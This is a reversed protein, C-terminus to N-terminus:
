HNNHLIGDLGCPTTERVDEVGRLVPPTNLPIRRSREACKKKYKSEMNCHDGLPEDPTSPTTVTNSISNFPFFNVIFVSCFIHKAFNMHWASSPVVYM